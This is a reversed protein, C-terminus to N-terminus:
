GNLISELKRDFSQVPTTEDSLKVPAAIVPKTKKLSKNVILFRLVNKNFSLNKKIESINEKDINFYIVGFYAQSQKKVPYALWRKKPVNSETAEGGNESIIRKLEATELNLKEEAIDPALLYALEYELKNEDTNM